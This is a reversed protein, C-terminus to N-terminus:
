AVPLIGAANDGDTLMRPYCAVIQRLRKGVTQSLGDNVVRKRRFLESRGYSLVHTFARCGANRSEVGRDVRLGVVAELDRLTSM